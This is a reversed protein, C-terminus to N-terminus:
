KNIKNYLYFIRLIITMFNLDKMKFLVIFLPNILKLFKIFKKRLHYIKNNIKNIQLIPIILTLTIILKKITIMMNQKIILNKLLVIEITLLSLNIINYIKM